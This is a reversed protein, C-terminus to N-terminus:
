TPGNSKNCSFLINRGPEISNTMNQGICQLFELTVDENNLQSVLYSQYNRTTGYRSIWSM